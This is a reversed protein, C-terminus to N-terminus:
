EVRVITLLLPAITGRIESCNIAVHFDYTADEVPFMLPLFLDLVTQSHVYPLKWRAVLTAGDPSRTYVVEDVDTMERVRGDITIAIDVNSASRGGDNVVGIQIRLPKYAVPENQLFVLPDNPESRRRLGVAIAQRQNDAFFVNFEPSRSLEDVIRRANARLARLEPIGFALVLPLSVITMTWSIRQIWLWGDDWLGQVPAQLSAPITDFM